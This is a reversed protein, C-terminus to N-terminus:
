PTCTLFILDVRRGMYTVLRIVKYLGDSASTPLTTEFVPMFGIEELHAVFCDPSCKIEPDKGKETHLYFFVDLDKESTGDQLVSGGLAVHYGNAIAIPELIRCLGIGDQINWITSM